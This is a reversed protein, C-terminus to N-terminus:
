SEVRRRLEADLESLRTEIRSQKRWTLLLFVLLIAWMLLYAAVLLVEASTSESGGQVAIFETSRDAPTMPAGASTAAAKDDQANM